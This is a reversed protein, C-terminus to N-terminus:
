IASNGCQVWYNSYYVSSRGDLTSRRFGISLITTKRANDLGLVLIRGEKNGFLSSFLRTFIIGMEGEILKLTFVIFQIRGKRCVVALWAPHM